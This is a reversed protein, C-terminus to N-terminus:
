RQPRQGRSEKLRRLAQDSQGKRLLLYVLTRLPALAQPQVQLAKECAREAEDLNGDQSHLSALNTYLMCQTDGLRPFLSPEYMVLSAHQGGDKANKEKEDAKGDKDKSAQSGASCNVLFSPSTLGGLSLSPNMGACLTRAEPSVPEDDKRHSSVAGILQDGQSVHGHATLFGQQLEMGKCLANGTTFNSLLAKAEAVKGTLLLAEAAYLVASTIAGMASPWKVSQAKPDASHPLNVAQFTWSKRSEEEQTIKAGDASVQTVLNNKELLRRSYRLAAAHDHQCLSIYALKVLAADELLVAESEVIDRAQHRSGGTTTASGPVKSSTAAGGTATKAVKAAGASAAQGTAGAAVPVPAAAAAGAEAGAEAAGAAGAVTGREPLTPAILVLVNRLCMAAHVLADDGALAPGGDLAAAKSAAQMPMAGPPAPAGAPGTRQEGAQPAGIEDSPGNRGLPPNRATTLLWRRNAGHGQVSWMLHKGDSSSAGGALGCAAVSPTEVAGKPAPQRMQQGSKGAAGGEAVNGSHQSTSQRHMEICSEGIRLWLRPWSRFVATCQEFCKFAATPRETMLLQLGANYATEARRDLWHRSAAVGPLKMGAKSSLLTDESAAVAHARNSALQPQPPAPPGKASLAKQFYYSALSPKHMMFHICGMNNFFVSACAEDQAPHFDTLMYDEGDDDGAKGGKPAAQQPLTRGAAAFNFRSLSLLKVAKRINQRSYELYAKLVNVMAHQQCSLADKVSDEASKAGDDGEAKGTTHVNTTLLPANRLEQEFVELASKVDKKASKMNKLMVDLRARYMLCYFRYEAKSITDPARGHRPLFAGVTLSPLPGEPAESPKEAAAEAFRESALTAEAAATDALEGGPDNGDEGKDEKGEEGDVEDMPRTEIKAVPRRESRLVTLFANPKELYNLVVVAQEPERQMLCLELLLFCIKIALFDDIPEINDFLEELILTAQAYQRLQICLLAQNYRLISLDEEERYTDEDDDDRKRRGKDKKDRERARDYAQSLQTLLHQPDTCGSKFYENLLTNHTVKVDFTNKFGNIQELLKACKVHDASHYSDFADRAANTTEM